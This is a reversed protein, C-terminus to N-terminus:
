ASQNVDEACILELEEKNIAYMLANYSIRLAEKAVYDTARNASRRVLVVSINLHRHLLLRINALIAKAFWPDNCKDRALWQVSNTADTHVEVQQLGYGCAIVFIAKRLAMLEAIVPSTTKIKEAIM